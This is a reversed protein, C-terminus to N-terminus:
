FFYINSICKKLFDFITFFIRGYCYSAKVMQLFVKAYARLFDVVM